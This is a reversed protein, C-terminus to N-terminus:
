PFFHHNGVYPKELGELELDYITPIRIGPVPGTLLIGPGM